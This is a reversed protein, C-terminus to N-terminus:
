PSGPCLLAFDMPLKAMKEHIVLPIRILPCCGSESGDAQFVTKYLLHKRRWEVGWVRGAGM